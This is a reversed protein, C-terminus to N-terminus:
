VSDGLQSNLYDIAATLLDPRDRFMGLGVNCKNCLLGRINGTVHCHDVVMQDDLDGCIACRNEQSEALILYDDHSLGYKAKLRYNRSRLAGEPGERERRKKGRKKWYDPDKSARIRASEISKKNVCYKCTSKNTAYFEEASRELGCFKCIPM